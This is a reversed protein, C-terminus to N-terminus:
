RYENDVSGVGGKRGRIPSALGHRIAQVIVCESWCGHLCEPANVDVKMALGVKGLIQDIEGVQACRYHNTQFASSVLRGILSASM